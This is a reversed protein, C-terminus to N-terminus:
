SELNRGGEEGGLVGQRQRGARFGRPQAEAQARGEERDGDRGEASVQM